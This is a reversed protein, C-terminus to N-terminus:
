RRPAGPLGCSLSREISVRGTIMICLKDMPTDRMKSCATAAKLDWSCAGPLLKDRAEIESVTNSLVM